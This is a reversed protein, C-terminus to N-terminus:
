VHEPERDDDARRERHAADAPADGGVDLLELFDRAAAEIEARHSPDQDPPPTPRPLPALMSSNLSLAPRPRSKLGTCSTRSSSDTIPQFSYSSSTIRSLPSLKTTMQEISFTSGIPPCLPSVM